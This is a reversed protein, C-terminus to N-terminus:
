INDYFMIIINYIIISRIRIIKETRKTKHTYITVGLKDFRVHMIYLSNYVYLINNYIYSYNTLM